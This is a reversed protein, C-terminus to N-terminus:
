RLPEWGNKDGTGEQNNKKHTVGRKMVGEWGELYTEEISFGLDPGSKETNPVLCHKKKL